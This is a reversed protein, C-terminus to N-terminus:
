RVERAMLYTEEARPDAAHLRESLMGYAKAVDRGTESYGWIHMLLDTDLLRSGKLAYNGYASLVRKAKERQKESLKPLNPISRIMAEYEKPQRPELTFGFGSYFPKGTIISPVGLCPYELGATGLVTITANAVELVSAPSFDAPALFVNPGGLRRVLEETVGEEKYVKVAPHVKVLFNLEPVRAAIELTAQMWQYFDRYLMWDSCHPTDSYIHVMVQVFPNDNKVGLKERLESKSYLRMGKYALMIDVRKVEARFREALLRDVRAIVEADGAQRQMEKEVFRRVTSHYNSLSKKDHASAYLNFDVDTTVIVKVGRLNALRCLLGYQLYAIHTAVLYQPRIKEVAAEYRRVISCAAFLYRFYRQDLSEITPRSSESHIIDDYILDGVRIGRYELKLLSDPDTLSRWIRKADVWASLSRLLNRLLDRQLYYIRSIGFSAYALAESRREWAFDDFVVAPELGDREELAKAALATRLIYNPGYSALFGCILVRGKGGPNKRAASWHPKNARVFSDVYAAQPPTWVGVGYAAERFFRLFKNAVGM